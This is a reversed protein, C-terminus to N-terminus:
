SRDSFSHRRPAAQPFSNLSLINFVERNGHYRAVELPTRDNADKLELLKRNKDVLAQIVGEHSRAAALHLPTSYWLRCRAEIKAGAIVLRRVFRSHGREAALHIPTCNNHDTSELNSTTNEGRSLLPGLTEEQGFWAAYHLITRGKHDARDVAAGGKTTLEDILSWSANMAACHSPHRGYNDELLAPAGKGLLFEVVKLHGGLAALHLPSSGDLSQAEINAGKALLNEVAELKGDQCAHHLLTLGRIDVDAVREGLEGSERRIQSDPTIRGPGIWMPLCIERYDDQTLPFRCKYKELAERLQREDKHDKETPGDPPFYDWDYFYRAESSSRRYELYKEAVAVSILRISSGRPSREAIELLSAYVDGADEWRMQGEYRGGKELAQLAVAYLEPLRDHVSFPAVISLYADDLSHLGAGKIDQALKSLQSSQLNLAKWSDTGSVDKHTLKLKWNNPQPHANDSQPCETPRKSVALMFSFFLDKAYWQECVDYSEAAVIRKTNRKKAEELEDSNVQVNPDKSSGPNGPTAQDHSADTNGSAGHNTLNNENGFGQDRDLGHDSPFHLENEFSDNSDTSEGSDSSKNSDSDQDRNDPGRFSGFILFDLYRNLDNRDQNSGTLDQHNAFEHFPEWLNKRRRQSHRSITWDKEAWEREDVSWLRSAIEEPLWRQLGHALDDEHPGLKRYAVEGGLQKNRLWSDNSDDVDGDSQAKKTSYMWLSLVADIEDTRAEWKKKKKEWALRIQVTQTKSDDTDQSSPYKVPFCWDYGNGDQMGQPYITNLVVEIAASLRTASEFAPGRWHSLRALGIRMSMVGQATDKDSVETRNERGQTKPPSEQINSGQGPRAVWSKVAEKTAQGSLDERRPSGGRAHTPVLSKPGHDTGQGLMDKCRPDNGLNSLALAFWDLEYGSILGQTDVPTTFGRRVVTRLLTMFLVAALQVVSASWHMGRLGIFQIVFGLLGLITGLITKTEITIDGAREEVQTEAMSPRRESSGSNKTDQQKFVRSSATIVDCPKRRYIATPSFAQDSVKSGKQLWVLYPRKGDVARYRTEKTSSDVVHACTLMGLVLLATGTATMPFAYTAIPRGDKDFKSTHSYAIFGFYSVIALQIAM